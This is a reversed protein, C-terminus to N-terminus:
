DKRNIAKFTRSDMEKVEAVYAQNYPSEEVKLFDFLKIAEVFKTARKDQSNFSIMISKMPAFTQADM